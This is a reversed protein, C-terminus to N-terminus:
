LHFSQLHFTPSASVRPTCNIGRQLFYQLNNPGQKFKLFLTLVLLGQLNLGNLLNIAMMNYHLKQSSMTQVHIGQDQLSTCTSLIDVLPGLRSIM